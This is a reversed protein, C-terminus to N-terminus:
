YARRNKNKIDYLDRIRNNEEVDIVMYDKGTLGIPLMFPLFYQYNDRNLGGGSKQLETDLFEQEEPSRPLFLLPIVKNGIMQAVRGKVMVCNYFTRTQPSIGYSTQVPMLIQATFLRPKAKMHAFSFASLPNLM